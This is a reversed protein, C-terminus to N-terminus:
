RPFPSSCRFPVLIGAVSCAQSVSIRVSENFLDPSCRIQRAPLDLDESGLWRGARRLNPVIGSKRRRGKPSSPEETPAAAPASNSSGTPPPSCTSTTSSSWCATAPTASAPSPPSSASSSPIQKQPLRSFCGNPRGPPRPFPPQGVPNSRQPTRRNENPFPLPTTTGDGEM